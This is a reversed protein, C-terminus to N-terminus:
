MPVQPRRAQQSAAQFPPRSPPNLAATGAGRRPSPCMRSIHGYQGCNFCPGVGPVQGQTVPPRPASSAAPFPRRAVWMPQPAAGPARTFSPQGPCPRQASGSAPPLAARKRRKAELKKMKDEAFIARDVMHNFDRYESTSLKDQMEESLGNYFYGRKKRDTSVEDSAYLALYNFAHVYEM